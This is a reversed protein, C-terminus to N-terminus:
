VIRIKLFAYSQQGNSLQGWDVVTAAAIFSIKQKTASNNRKKRVHSEDKNGFENKRM